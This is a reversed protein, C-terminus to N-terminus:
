QGVWELLVELDIAAHLLGRACVAESIFRSTM